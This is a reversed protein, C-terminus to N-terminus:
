FQLKKFVWPFLGLGVFATILYRLLHFYSLDPLVIKLGSKVGIIIALGLVLRIIKKWLPVKTEFQVFREEFLFALFAGLFLGYIKFFDFTLPNNDILFVIGFPLMVALVILFLLKSNGVRDYLYNGLIALGIGLLGGVLVDLPYHVGLYLRSLAVLVIIIIAVILPWRKKLQLAIGPFLTAAGQTHGSPFSYGTATEERLTRIGEEGIPRPCKVLNKIVGNVLNSSLIIFVLKKGTEKNIAYYFLAILAIALTEEGLMTIYESLTDLFPSSVQQIFRIIELQFEKLIM